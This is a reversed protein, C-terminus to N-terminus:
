DGSVVFVLSLIFAKNKVEYGELNSLNTLGQRYSVAIRFVEGIGLRAGVTWGADLRKYQYPKDGFYKESYEKSFSDYVNGGANLNRFEGEVDINGAVGVSMYAGGSLAFGFGSDDIDWWGLALSAPIDIYHGVGKYNYRQRQVEGSSGDGVSTNIVYKSGMNLYGLAFDGQCWKNGVKWDLGVQGGWRNDYDFFREDLKAVNAGGYFGFDLVEQARLGPVALCLLLGSLLFAGFRRKNKSEVKM